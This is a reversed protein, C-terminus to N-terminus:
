AYVEFIRLKGGNKKNKLLLRAASDMLRVQDFKACLEFSRRVLPVEPEDFTRWRALHSAAHRGVREGNEQLLRIRM